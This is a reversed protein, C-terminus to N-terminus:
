APNPVIWLYDDFDKDCIVIPHHIESLNSPTIGEDRCKQDYIRQAEELSVIRPEKMGANAYDAVIYLM